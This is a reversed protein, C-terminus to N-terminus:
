IRTQQFIFHFQHWQKHSDLTLVLERRGCVVSIRTEVGSTKLPVELRPWLRWAKWLLCWMLSQNLSPVDILASYLLMRLKLLLSGTNPSINPNTTESTLVWSPAKLVSFSWVVFPDTPLSIMFVYKSSVNHSSLFPLKYWVDGAYFHFLCSWPKSHNQQPSTSFLVCLRCPTCCPITGSHPGTAYMNEVM